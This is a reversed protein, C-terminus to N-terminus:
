IYRDLFPLNYSKKLITVIFTDICKNRRVISGHPIDSVRFKLSPVLELPPSQLMWLCVRFLLM